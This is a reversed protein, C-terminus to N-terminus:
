GTEPVVWAVGQWPGVEAQFYPWGWDWTVPVVDAVAHGRVMRPSRRDSTRVHGAARVTVPTTIPTNSRTNM